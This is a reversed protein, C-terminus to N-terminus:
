VRNNDIELGGSTIYVIALIILAAIVLLFALNQAMRYVPLSFIYFGIDRGFMPDIQGFPQRHFYALVDLWATGAAASFLFALFAAGAMAILNLYRAPVEEHIEINCIRRRISGFSSAALRLNVFFFLFMVVATVVRLLLRTKLGTWFVSQYGLVDFWLLDVITNVISGLFFLTLAVAVAIITLSHRRLRVM